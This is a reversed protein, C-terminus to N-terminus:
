DMYEVKGIGCSGRLRYWLNIDRCLFYLKYIIYGIMGGILM